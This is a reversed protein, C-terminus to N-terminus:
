YEFAFKVNEILLYPFAFGESQYEIGVVLALFNYTHHIIYQSPSQQGSISCLTGFIRDAPSKIQGFKKSSRTFAM